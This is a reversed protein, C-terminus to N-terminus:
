KHKQLKQIKAIMKISLYPKERHNLSNIVNYYDRNKNVLKDINLHMGINQLFVTVCFINFRIQWMLVFMESKECIVNM